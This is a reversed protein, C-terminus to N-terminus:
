KLNGLLTHISLSQWTGSPLNRRPSKTTSTSLGIEISSYAPELFGGGNKSWEVYRPSM